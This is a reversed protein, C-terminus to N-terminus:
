GLPFNRAWIYIKIRRIMKRSFDGWFVDQSKQHTIRRFHYLNHLIVETGATLSCNVLAWVKISAENPLNGGASATQLFLNIVTKTPWVKQRTHHRCHAGIISWCCSHQTEGLVLAANCGRRESLYASVATGNEHFYKSYELTIAQVRTNTCRCLRLTGPRARHESVSAQVPTCWYWLPQLLVSLLHQHTCIDATTATPSFEGLNAINFPMTHDAQGILHKSVVPPGVGDSLLIDTHSLSVPFQSMIFWRATTNVSESTRCVEHVESVPPKVNADACEDSDLQLHTWDQCKRWSHEPMVHTIAHQEELVPCEVLIYTITDTLSELGFSKWQFLGSLFCDSIAHLPSQPVPLSTM